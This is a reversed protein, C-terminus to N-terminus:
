KWRQQLLYAHHHCEEHQKNEGVVDDEQEHPCRIQAQEEAAGEWAHEGVRLVDELVSTLTPAGLLSASVRPGSAM